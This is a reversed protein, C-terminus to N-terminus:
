LIKYHNIQNVIRKQKKKYAMREAETACLLEPGAM